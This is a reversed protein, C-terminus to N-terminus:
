STEVGTEGVGDHMTVSEVHTPHDFITVKYGPEDAIVVNM